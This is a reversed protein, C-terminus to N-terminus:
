LVIKYVNQGMLKWFSILVAKNANQASLKVLVYNAIQLLRIVFNVHNLQLKMMM